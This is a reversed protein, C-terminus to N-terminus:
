TKKSSIVTCELNKQNRSPWSTSSPPNRSGGGWGDPETEKSDRSKLFPPHKQPVPDKLSLHLLTLPPLPRGWAPEEGELITRRHGPPPFTFRRKTGESWKPSSSPSRAAWRSPPRRNAPRAPRLFCSDLPPAVPSRPLDQWHCPATLSSPLAVPEAGFSVPLSKFQSVYMFFFTLSSHVPSSPYMIFFLTIWSGSWFFFPQYIHLLFFIREVLMMKYCHLVLSAQTCRYLRIRCYIRILVTDCPRFNKTLGTLPGQTSVM